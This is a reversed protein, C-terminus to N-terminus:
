FANGLNLDVRRRERGLISGARRNEVLDRFAARVLPMPRGVLEQLVVEEIRSLEERRRNRVLSIVLKASRNAPRDFLVLQEKEEVDFLDDIVANRIRVVGIR